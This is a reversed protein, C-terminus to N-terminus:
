NLSVKRLDSIVSADSRQAHRMEVRMAGLIIAHAQLAEVLSSQTIPQRAEPPVPIGAAEFAAVVDQRSKELARMRDSPSAPATWKCGAM